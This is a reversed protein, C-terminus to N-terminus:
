MLFVNAVGKYVHRIVRCTYMGIIVRNVRRTYMGILGVLAKREREPLKLQAPVDGSVYCFVNPVCQSCM